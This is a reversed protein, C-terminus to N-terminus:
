FEIKYMEMIRLNEVEFNVTGNKESFPIERGDPLHRVCRVRKETKVGVEFRPLTISEDAELINSASLYIAKEDAFAVTEVSSGVNATVSFPASDMLKLLEILIRGYDSATHFEIDGASWIVRGKGYETMIIAPHNTAIGPPDSHFSACKSGDCRATYALKVFALVKEESVGSVLPITMDMPLPYKENYEPMIGEFGSKPFIYPKVSGSYKEIKGGTLTEFLRNEDGGSFYLNGGLNVYEILADVTESDLRNIHPAIIYRYKGWEDKKGKNIVSYPIHAGILHKAAQISATRNEPIRTMTSFHLFAGDEGSDKQLNVASDFNYFLGVDAIPEGKLYPEYEAERKYIRGLMDYFREDMTGVPDIADIALFAGHHSCTLMVQRTLQDESKTVTHARLNPTCRGTMYEFPQNKSIGRYTNCVFAQEMFGGYLDGGVYESAKAIGDRCCGNFGSTAASFNHEVSIDPIISHVYDTVANAWESMWGARADCFDLWEDRSCTGLVPLERSKESAYRERCSPCYCPHPWYLMDFFIGDLSFKHLIEEIQSYVFSRYEKNNPCCLGARETANNERTSKGNKELMRWESHNDHAWQNFDLSYYGVVSIGDGRCMDILRKIDDPHGEFYKHTKATKSQWNCYGLHSQLYIMAVQVNARKLMNFYTEPSFESLFRDDWDDIHMDMLHRRYKDAYWKM